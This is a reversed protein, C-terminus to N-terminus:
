QTDIDQSGHCDGFRRGSECPCPKRYRGAAATAGMLVEEQAHASLTSLMEFFQREADAAGQHMSM